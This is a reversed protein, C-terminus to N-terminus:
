DERMLETAQQRLEAARRRDSADLVDAWDRYTQALQFRQFPAQLAAVSNEFCATADFTGEPLIVRRNEMANAVFGLTRWSVGRDTRHEHRTAHRHCERACQWAALTDGLALYSRALGAYTGVLGWWGSEGVMALVRTLHDVATTYHGTLGYLIGLGNTYSIIDHRMNSQEALSLANVIHEIASLHDGLWYAAWAQQYIVRTLLGTDQVTSALMRAQQLDQIARSPQLRRLYARGRATYAMLQVKTDMQATLLQVAKDAEQWGLEIDDLAMHVTSLTILAKLYQSQGASGAREALDLAHTAYTLAEHPDDLILHLHAMADWALAQTVLDGAREATICVATYASIADNCRGQATLVQGYGEYLQLQVRTDDYNDPLLDFARDYYSAARDPLYADFAQRAALGYWKVARSLQSARAYHQAIIVANEGVSQMSRGIFWRALQLHYRRLQPQRLSNYAVLYLTSQQFMYEQAGAFSSRQRPVVMSRRHLMQLVAQVDISESQGENQLHQVARDWFIRGVAAAQQIVTREPTSLANMRAQLVGMVTAPIHIQAADPEPLHWHKVGRVLLDEDHLLRVVEEMHFPNGGSAAVIRKLLDEQGPQEGFIAHLFQYSEEESFSHLRISSYHPNDQVAPLRDFLSPQAAAVIMLPLQHAREVLFNVFHLSAHDANHLDELRIIIPQQYQRHLTRFLDLLTEYAVSQFRQYDSRLGLLHPSNSFDFGILQGIIHARRAANEGILREIGEILRQRAESETHQETIDFRQALMERLLGFPLMRESVTANGEFAILNEPNLELWKDFEFLLRSKGVGSIGTVLVAHAQQQDVVRRYLSQIQKLEAARGIMTSSITELELRGLLRPSTKLGDVRYYASDDAAQIVAFHGRVEKYAAYSLYLGPPLPAVDAGFEAAYGALGDVVGSHTDILVRCGIFEAQDLLDTIMHQITAQPDLNDSYFATQLPDDPPTDDPYPVPAFGANHLITQLPTNNKSMSLVVLTLPRREAEMAVAEQTDLQSLQENLALLTLDVVTDGLMDRRQEIETITKLLRQRIKMPSATEVGQETHKVM